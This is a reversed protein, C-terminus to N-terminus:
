ESMVLSMALSQNLLDSTEKTALFAVVLRIARLLLLLINSLFFRGGKSELFSPTYTKFKM